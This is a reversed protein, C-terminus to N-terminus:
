IKELQKEMEELKNVLQGITSELAEKATLQGTTEITLIFDTKSYDFKVGNKRL